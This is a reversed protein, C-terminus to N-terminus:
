LMVCECGTTGCYQSMAPRLNKILQIVDSESIGSKQALLTPCPCFGFQECTGMAGEVTASAQRVADADSKMKGFDAASVLSCQPRFPSLSIYDFKQKNPYVKSVTCIVQQDTISNGFSQLDEDTSVRYAAHVQDLLSSLSNGNYSSVTHTMIQEQRLLGAQNDNNRFETMSVDCRPRFPELQYYDYETRTKRLQAVTCVIDKKTLDIGFNKVTQSSSFNYINHSADLMDQVSQEETTMKLVNEYLIERARMKDAIETVNNDVEKMFGIVAQQSSRINNKTVTNFDISFLPLAPDAPLKPLGLVGSFGEYEEVNDIISKFSLSLNKFTEIIEPWQDEIAKTQDTVNQFEGKLNDRYEEYAKRAREMEDAVTKWEQTQVAIQVADAIMGLATMGGQSWGLKYNKVFYKRSSQSTIFKKVNTVKAAPGRLSHKLKGKFGKWTRIRSWKKISTGLNKFNNKVNVIMQKLVKPIYKFKEKFTVQSGTPVGHKEMVEAYRPHDPDLMIGVDTPSANFMATWVSTSYIDEPLAIQNYARTFASVFRNISFELLYQVLLGIGQNMKKTNIMKRIDSLSYELEGILNRLYETSNPNAEFRQYLHNLEIEFAQAIKEQYEELSHVARLTENIYYMIYATDTNANRLDLYAKKNELYKEDYKTRLAKIENDLKEIKDKDRCISPYSSCGGSVSLSLIVKM